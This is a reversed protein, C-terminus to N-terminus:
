RCAAPLQDGTRVGRVAMLDVLCANVYAPRAAGSMSECTAASFMCTTPDPRVAQCCAQAQTCINCDAVTGGDAPTAGSRGATGTGTAGGSGEGGGTTGAVTGAYHGRHRRHSWFGRQLEGQENSSVSDDAGDCGATMVFGGLVIGAIAGLLGIRGMQMAGGKDRRGLKLRGLWGIAPRSQMDFALILM